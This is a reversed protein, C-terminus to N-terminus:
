VVNQDDPPNLNDPRLPEGAEYRRRLEKIEPIEEPDIGERRLRWRVYVLQTRLWVFRLLNWLFLM